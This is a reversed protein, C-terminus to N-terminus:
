LIDSFTEIVMNIFSITEFQLEPQYHLFNFVLLVGNTANGSGDVSFYADVTKGDDANKLMDLKLGYSKTEEADYYDKYDEGNIKYTQEYKHYQYFLEPHEQLLENLTSVQVCLNEIRKYELELGELFKEEQRYRNDGSMRDEFKAEILTKDLDNYDLENKTEDSLFGKLYTRADEVLQEYSYMDYQDILTNARRQKYADPDEENQSIEATSSFIVDGEHNSLRIPLIEIANDQMQEYKIELVDYSLVSDEEGEKLLNHFDIQNKGYVVDDYYYSFSQGTSLRVGSMSYVLEWLLISAIVVVIVLIWEYALFNSLRSKTIKYDM